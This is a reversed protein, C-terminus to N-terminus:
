PWRDHTRNLRKPLRGSRRKALDCSRGSLEQAVAHAEAAAPRGQRCRRARRIAKAYTPSGDRCVVEVGPHGRLRLELTDATRDPPVDIREHTEAVIVVTAYRHRRHLAIDDAGIVRPVRGTPLPIRLLARLATHPSLGVTLAALLTSGERGTLEKVVANVQRSLHPTHRQNRSWLGPVQELFTHRCGRTLCALRRVRVHVGRRGGVPADAVTRLHSGHM